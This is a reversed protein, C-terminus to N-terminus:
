FYRSDFGGGQMESAKSPRQPAPLCLGSPQSIPTALSWWQEQLRAQRNESLVKICYATLIKLAERATEEQTSELELEPLAPPTFQPPTPLPDVGLTRVNGWEKQLYIQWSLASVDTAARNVAQCLTYLHAWFAPSILLLPISLIGGLTGKFVPYRFWSITFTKLARLARGRFALSAQYSFDTVWALDVTRVASRLVEPGHLLRFWEDPWSSSPLRCVGSLRSRMYASALLLSPPFRRLDVWLRKVMEIGQSPFVIFGLDILHSFLSIAHGPSRCFRLLERGSVGSLDGVHPSVVRKAFELLGKDSTISKGLNIPVGLYRMISLYEDAVGKTLIVIDDGLLAYLPFWGKWGSRYAAVQVIIHHTLALMAWSSLAGMPQGVAYKIRGVAPNSYTRFTILLRWAWAFLRRGTIIRLIQEQLAVPLRDTANSLDFSFSPYGLRSFELLGKVPLLQDFTGDQPIRRLVDFLYAHLSRLAWQSWYDVVGVIRRKGGGDKALVSLRGLSLRTGKYWLYLAVPMMLHSVTVLWVALLRQRSTWAYLSFVLLIPINLSYALIDKASGWLSWPHNPGSSIGVWPAVYGLTPQPLTFYKLVAVIEGDFLTQSVGSFPLTISSFDPRAGKWDMVRYLNFVTHLGRFSLIDAASNLGTPRLKAPIILPLGAPSVRIKVGPNPSYPQSNAWAILALRCEKLYAITFRPGSLQWLRTIRKALVMWLAPNSGLIRVLRMVVRSLEGVTMWRMHREKPKFSSLKKFFGTTKPPWTRVNDWGVQSLHTLAADVSLWLVKLFEFSYYMTIVLGVFIGFGVKLLPYNWISLADKLWTLWQMFLTM